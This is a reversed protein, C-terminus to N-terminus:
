LSNLTLDTGYGWCVSLHLVWGAVFASKHLMILLPIPDLIIISTDAPHHSASSEMGHSPQILKLQM